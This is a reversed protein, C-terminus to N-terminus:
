KPQPHACFKSTTIDGFLQQFQQDGLQQRLADIFKQDLVLKRCVLNRDVGGTCDANDLCRRSCYAAANDGATDICTFDECDAGGTSIYDNVNDPPTYPQNEITPNSTSCNATCVPRILKCSSGLDNSGCGGAMAVGWWLLAISAPLLLRRM